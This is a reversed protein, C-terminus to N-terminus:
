RIEKWNISTLVNATTTGTRIAAITLIGSETGRRNWLLSRGLLTKTSLSKNKDSSVYDSLLNHGGSFATAATDFEIVSENTDVDSWSASTLTNNHVVVIKIPNDTSITISQPIVLARNNLSNFTTRPRISLLPILTTAVSKATVDSDAVRNYGTLNELDLGGESKVTGCIARLEAGANKAVRYRFGIGNDADGYGIECYTYTADNYIRWTLPLHPLQWYAEPRINDNIIEHVPVAVGSRNLYFRIRGVKLSQFDIEFIQSNTWDADSVTDKNWSTQDTVTEVVSGSVKSRVFIQAVGGAINAENITGTLAILQSNGATYPVDYSFMSAETATTTNNIALTLDRSNANHTVTGGSVTVEDVIEPQKDYIFEVDLRQATNSTRLRGFADFYVDPFGVVSNGNVEVNELSRVINGM